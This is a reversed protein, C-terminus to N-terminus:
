AIVERWKLSRSGQAKRESISKLADAMRACAPCEIEVLEWRVDDRLRGNEDIWDDLHTGCRHRTRERVIKALIKAQEIVPWEKFEDHRMGASVCFEM